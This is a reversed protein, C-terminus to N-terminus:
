IFYLSRTSEWYQHPKLPGEENACNGYNYALKHAYKCPAPVKITGSWNYYSYSLKYALKEIEENECDSDDYIVKLNTARKTTTSRLLFFEFRGNQNKDVCTGVPPLKKMSVKARKNVIMFILKPDETMYNEYRLQQFALKMQPIEKQLLAHILSDAVGTRFVIIRQPLFGNELKFQLLAQYACESILTTPDINSPSTKPCSFYRAFYKDTTACFGLVSHSDKKMFYDIGIVMTPKESLPMKEIAWPMGGVKANMQMILKNTVSTLLQDKKLTSNLICQSPIPFESFTLRKLNDYLESKKNSGPIICVIM